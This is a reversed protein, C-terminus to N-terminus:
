IICACSVPMLTDSPAQGSRSLGVQVSMKCEMWDSGWAKRERKDERMRHWRVDRSRWM